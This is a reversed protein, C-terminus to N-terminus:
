FSVIKLARRQARTMGRTAVKDQREKMLVEEFPLCPGDKLSGGKMDGKVKGDGEMRDRSRQQPTRADGDKM